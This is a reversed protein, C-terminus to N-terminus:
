MLLVDYKHWIRNAVNDKYLETYPGLGLHPVFVLFNSVQPHHTQQTPHSDFLNNPLQSSTTTTRPTKLKSTAMNNLDFSAVASTAMAM